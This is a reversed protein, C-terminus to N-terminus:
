RGLRALVEAPAGVEIGRSALWSQLDTDGLLDREGTV